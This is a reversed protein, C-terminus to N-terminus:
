NGTCTRGSRLFVRWIWVANLGSAGVRIADRPPSPGVDV